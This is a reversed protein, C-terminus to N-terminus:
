KRSNRQRRSKRAKRQKRSKRQRRSRRGGAKSNLNLGGLLDSLDADEDIVVQFEQGLTARGFIDALDSVAESTADPKQYIKIDPKGIRGKIERVFVWPRSPQPDSSLVKIVLITKTMKKYILSLILFLFQNFVFRFIDM